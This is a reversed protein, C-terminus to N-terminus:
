ITKTQFTQTYFLFLFSSSLPFLAWGAWGLGEGKRERAEKRKRRRGAHAVSPGDKGEREKREVAWGSREGREEKVGERACGAQGV